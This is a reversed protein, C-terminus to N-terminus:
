DESLENIMKSYGRVIKAIHSVKNELYRIRNMLSETNADMRKEYDEYIEQAQQIISEVNSDWKKNTINELILSARLICTFYLNLKSNAVALNEREYETM